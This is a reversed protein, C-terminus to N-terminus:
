SRLSCWSALRRWRTRQSRTLQWTSSTDPIVNAIVAPEDGWFSSRVLNQFLRLGACLDFPFGSACKDSASYGDRPHAGQLGARGEESTAILLLGLFPFPSGKLAYVNHETYLKVSKPIILMDVIINARSMMVM